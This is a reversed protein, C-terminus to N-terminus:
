RCFYNQDTIKPLFYNFIAYDIDCILYNHGNFIETLLVAHMVMIKDHDESAHNKATQDPLPGVLLGILAIKKIVYM